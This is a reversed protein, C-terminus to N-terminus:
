IGEGCAVEEVGVEAVDEAAVGLGERGHHFEAFFHDVAHAACGGGVVGGEFLVAERGVGGEAFGAVQDQVQKGEHDIGVDGVDAEFGVLGHEFDAFAEMELHAFFLGNAMELTQNNIADPTNKGDNNISNM